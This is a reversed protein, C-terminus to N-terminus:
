LKRKFGKGVAAGVVIGFIVGAIADSLWHFTASVGLGIYGAFLWGLIQTWRAPSLRAWASALAFAVTAHSSPWGWFIGGRWWGFQFVRSIDLGGVLGFVEPHARGTFAKYFFSLLLGLLAAQALATALLMMRRDRRMLGLAFLSLPWVIPVIFGILGAPWLLNFFWASRTALYYQWDVGSSVLVSTLVM